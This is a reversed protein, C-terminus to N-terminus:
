RRSLNGSLNQEVKADLDWVANVLAATALHMIGKEPGLWRLQSEGVIGRWFAGMDEVFSELTRGIVLPSLAAIATM